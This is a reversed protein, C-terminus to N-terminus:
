VSQSTIEKVHGAMVATHTKCLLHRLSHMLNTLHRLRYAVCSIGHHKSAQVKEAQHFAQAQPMAPGEQLPGLASPLRGTGM